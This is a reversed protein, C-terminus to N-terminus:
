RWDYRGHRAEFVTADFVIERWAAEIGVDLIPASYRYGGTANDFFRGAPDVMAYSGRM